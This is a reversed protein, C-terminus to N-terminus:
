PLPPRWALGFPESGTELSDVKEFTEGDIVYVRGPQPRINTCSVYVRTGDDSIAIGFPRPTEFAVTTIVESTSLRVVSMTHDLYNTVFVLNNDVPHIVMYTPGSRDANGVNSVPILISDLITRNVLAVVRLQDTGKSCALIARRGTADILVGYPGYVNSVPNFTPRASDLTLPEVNGAQTDLITIDDSSFGASIVYRGDRSIAIDHTQHGAQLISDRWVLQDGTVDDRHTRGASLTFDTLYLTDSGPHIAVATPFVQGPVTVTAVLSDNDARYKALEGGAQRGVVYYHGFDASFTVFHPEDIPIDFSAVRDLTETDYVYMTADAQNPV